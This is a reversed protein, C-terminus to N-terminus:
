KKMHEHNGYDFYRMIGIVMERAADVNSPAVYRVPMSGSFTASGTMLRSLSTELFTEWAIFMNLFAAVTIQRQDLFPLIPAGGGDVRHANAILTECQQVSAKFDALVQTLPM